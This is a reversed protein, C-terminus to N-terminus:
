KLFQQWKDAIIINKQEDSLEEFKSKVISEEDFEPFLKNFNLHKPKTMNTESVIKEAIRYLITANQRYDEKEKNQRAICFEGIDKCTLEYFEM